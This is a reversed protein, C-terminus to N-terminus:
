GVWGGGGGVRVRWGGGRDFLIKFLVELGIYPYAVFHM